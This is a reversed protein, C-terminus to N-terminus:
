LRADAAESLTLLDSAQYLITETYKFNHVGWSGDSSVMDLLSQARDIRTTLREILTADQQGSAYDRADALQATVQGHLQKTQGQWFPIYQDGTGPQHCRDCAEPTAKSVMGLSGVDGFRVETQGTHCGKCEVHTMFMPGLAPLNEQGALHTDAAYIGRQISHTGTHCDQCDIMAAMVPTFSPGHAIAGHCGWCEIKENGTHLRHLAASAMVHDNKRFSHCTLCSNETVASAREIQRKHCSTECSAEYSVLAEHDVMMLGRQITAQPLEHCSLCNTQVLREGTQSGKLFHCTYCTEAKVSFHQEGEYHSHCTTCTIQLGDIVKEIHHEHTFRVLGFQLSDERLTQRDHCGSRLCSADYV